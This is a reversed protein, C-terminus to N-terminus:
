LDRSATNQHINMKSWRYDHFCKMFISLFPWCIRDEETLFDGLIAHYLNILPLTGSLWWTAGSNCLRVKGACLMHPVSRSFGYLMSYVMHFTCLIFYQVYPIGYPPLCWGARTPQKVPNIEAGIWLSGM